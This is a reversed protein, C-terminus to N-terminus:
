KHLKKDMFYLLSFNESFVFGHLQLVEVVEVSKEVCVCLFCKSGKIRNKTLMIDTLWM